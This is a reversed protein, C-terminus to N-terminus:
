FKFEMGLVVRPNDRLFHSGWLYFGWVQRTYYLGALIDPDREFRWSHDLGLMPTLIDGNKMPFEYALHSYQNISYNGSEFVFWTNTCWYFRKDSTIAGDLYLGATLNAFNFNDNLDFTPIAAFGVGFWQNWKYGTRAMVGLYTTGPATYLDYGGAFYDGIGYQMTSYTEILNIGPRFKLSSYAYLKGDGAPRSFNPAQGQAIFSGLLLLLVFLLSKKM